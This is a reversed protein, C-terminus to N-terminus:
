EGAIPEWKGPVITAEDEGPWPPMTIAVATLPVDDASRFQFHTKLPITLCVGPEIRVIEERDAQKRWMEGRGS